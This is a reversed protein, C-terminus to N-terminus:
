FDAREWYLAPNEEIARNLDSPQYHQEISPFTYHHEAPPAAAHEPEHPSTEVDPATSAVAMGEATERPKVEPTHEVTTM